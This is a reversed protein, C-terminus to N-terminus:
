LLLILWNVPPTRAGSTDTTTDTPETGRQARTRPVALLLHASPRYVSAIKATSREQAPRQRIAQRSKLDEADAM